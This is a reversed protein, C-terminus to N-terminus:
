GVFVDYQIKLQEPTLQSEHTWDIIAWRGVNHELFDTVLRSTIEKKARHILEEKSSLYYSQPEHNIIV